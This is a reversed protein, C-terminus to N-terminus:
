PRCKKCSQKKSNRAHWKSEYYLKTDDAIKQASPCYSLHYFKGTESAVFEGLAGRSLYEDIPLEFAQITEDETEFVQVFRMLGLRDMTFRCSSNMSYFKLDGGRARSEDVYAVFASAGHSNLHALRRLDVTIRVIGRNMLRELVRTLAAETREDLRGSLSLIAIGDRDRLDLKLVRKEGRHIKQEELIEKIVDPNLLQKRALIQGLKPPRKGQELQTRQLALASDIDDSDVLRKRVLLEGLKHFTEKVKKAM